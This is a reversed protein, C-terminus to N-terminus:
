LGDSHQTEPQAEGEVAEKLNALGQVLMMEYNTRMHGFTLVQYLLYRRSLPELTASVESHGDVATIRYTILAQIGSLGVTLSLLSPWNSQEVTFAQPEGTSLESWLAEWVAPPEAEIRFAKEIAM